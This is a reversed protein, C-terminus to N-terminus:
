ITSSILISFGGINYLTILCEQTEEIIYIYINSSAQIYTARTEINTNPLTINIYMNVEISYLGKAYQDAM